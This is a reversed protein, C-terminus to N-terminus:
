FLLIALSYIEELIKRWERGNTSNVGRILNIEGNITYM